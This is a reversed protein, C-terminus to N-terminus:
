QEWWRSANASRPAAVAPPYSGGAAHGLLALTRPGAPVSYDVAAILESNAAEVLKLCVYVRDSAPTYTGVLVLAANHDGALESMDRSLLFEGSPNILVSGSRVTLHVPSYHRHTLRAAVFEGVLRGFTSTAQVDDLNVVTAVLVRRNPVSFSATSLLCDVANYSTKVLDADKDGGEDFATINSMCNCGALCLAGCLFAVQATTRVYQM